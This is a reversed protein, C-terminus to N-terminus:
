NPSRPLTLDEASTTALRNIQHWIRAM